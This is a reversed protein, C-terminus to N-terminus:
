EGAQQDKRKLSPDLQVLRSGTMQERWLRLYARRLAVISVLALTQGQQYIRRTQKPTLGTRLLLQHLRSLEEMVHEALDPETQELERLVEHQPRRRMHRVADLVDKSQVLQDTTM